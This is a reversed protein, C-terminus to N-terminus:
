NNFIAFNGFPGERENERMITLIDSQRLISITFNALALSGRFRNVKSPPAASYPVRKRSSPLNVDSCLRQNHWAEGVNRERQRPGSFKRGREERRNRERRRRERITSQEPWLRRGDRVMM